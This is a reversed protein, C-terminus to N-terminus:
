KGKGNGRGNSKGGSGSDSGSGTDGGSAAGSDNTQQNGSKAVVRVSGERQQNIKLRQCKLFLKYAASDASPVLTGGRFARRLLECGGPVAAVGSSQGQLQPHVLPQQPVITVPGKAQAAPPEDLVGLTMQDPDAPLASAGQEAQQGIPQPPEAPRARPKPVFIAATRASESKPKPQEQHKEAAITAPPETTSKIPKTSADLDKKPAPLLARTPQARRVVPMELGTAIAQQQEAREAPGSFSSQLTPPALTQPRASNAGFGILRDPDQRAIEFATQFWPASSWEIANREFFYGYGAGGTIVLALSAALALQLKAFTRKRKIRLPELPPPVLEFVGFPKVAAALKHEEAPRLNVPMSEAITAAVARSVFISGGPVQEKLKGATEICKQQAQMDDNPSDEAHVGIRLQIGELEPLAQSLAAFMRHLSLACIVASFPKRFVVVFDGSAHSVIQGQLKEIEPEFLKRQNTLVGSLPVATESQDASLQQIFDLVLAAIALPQEM